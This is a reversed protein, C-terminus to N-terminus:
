VSVTGAIPLRSELPLCATFVYAHERLTMTLIILFILVITDDGSDGPPSQLSRPYLFVQSASKPSLCLISSTMCLDQPSSCKLCFVYGRCYTRYGSCPWTAPVFPFFLPHSQLTQSPGFITLVTPKRLTHLLRSLNEATLSM